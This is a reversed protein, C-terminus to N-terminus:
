VNIYMRPAVIFIHGFDRFQKGGQAWFDSGSGGLTRGQDAMGAM